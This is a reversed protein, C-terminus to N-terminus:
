LHWGPWSVSSDVAPCWGLIDIGGPNNNNNNSINSNNDNNNNNNNNNNNLKLQALIGFTDTQRDTQRHKGRNLKKPWVVWAYAKM